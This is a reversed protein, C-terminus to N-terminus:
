SAMLLRPRSSNVSPGSPRSGCSPRISTSWGTVIRRPFRSGSCGRWSRPLRDPRARPSGHWRPMSAGGRSQLRSAARSVACHLSSGVSPHTRLPPRTRSRGGRTGRSRETKQWRRLSRRCWVRSGSGGLVHQLDADRGVLPSALGEIGRLTEPRPLAEVVRWSQVPEEKGKVEVGGLDEFEFLREVLQKTDDSIQITGPAATSEMRAATNVADGMATYEVRLDSGVAGVVVLGTNIGVRVDIDVGWERKVQAKYPEVAELIELGALVAREPDDEHGIPAGFFALIADGMLRALTGEYRYVPAILHEFAGNMVDAWEEPDMKEAAATSGQVDCFLMTVTRREGEMGGASAAYELKAMLESPIFKKLGGDDAEESEGVPTGCTPCFAAGAPLDANCSACSSTLAEGCSM